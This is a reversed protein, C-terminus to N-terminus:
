TEKRSERILKEALVKFNDKEGQKIISKAVITIM